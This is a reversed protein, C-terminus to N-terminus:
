RQTQQLYIEFNMYNISFDHSMTNTAIKCLTCVVIGLSVPTNDSSALVGIQVFGTNNHQPTLTGHEMIILEPDKLESTIPYFPPNVVVSYGTVHVGVSNLSVLLPIMKVLSFTNYLLETVLNLDYFSISHSVWDNSTVCVCVASKM